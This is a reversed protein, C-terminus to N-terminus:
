YIACINEAQKLNGLIYCLSSDASKVTGTWYVSSRSNPVFGYM